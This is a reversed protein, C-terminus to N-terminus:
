KDMSDGKEGTVISNYHFPGTQTRACLGRPPLSPSMQHEYRGTTPTVPAPEPLVTEWAEFTHIMHTDWSELTHAVHERLRKQKRLGLPENGTRPPEKGSVILRNDQVIKTSIDHTTHPIAAIM